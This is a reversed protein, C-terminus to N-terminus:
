FPLDDDASAGIGAAAPAAPADEFDESGKYEVWEVVQVADLIMTVGKKGGADYAFPAAIVNCVSGNGIDDKFDRKSLDVVRPPKNETGDKRKEKRTCTIFTGDDDHKFAPDYKGASAERAAKKLAEIQESNVYVQISWAPTFTRDVQHVKAWKVKCNSLLM